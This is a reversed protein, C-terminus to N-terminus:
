LGWMVNTSWNITGTGSTKYTWTGGPSIPFSYASQCPLGTTAVSGQLTLDFGFAGNTYFIDLAGSQGTTGGFFVSGVMLIRQGTVNTYLSSAVPNFNSLMTFSATNTPIFAKGTLNVELDNGNTGFYNTNGTILLPTSKVFPRLSYGSVSTFPGGTDLRSCNNAQVVCQTQANFAMPQIDISVPNTLGPENFTCNQLSFINTAVLANSTGTTSWFLFLPRNSNSQDKDSGSFQTNYIQVPFNNSYGNPITRTELWRFPKNNFVTVNSWNTLITQSNEITILAGAERMQIFNNNCLFRCGNFDWQFQNTAAAGEFHIATGQFQFTCNLYNVGGILAPSGTGGFTVGAYNIPLFSAPGGGFNGMPVDSSIPSGFFFNVGTINNTGCAQMDPLILIGSTNTDTIIVQNSSEGVLNVFPPVIFYDAYNGNTGPFTYTGAMLVITAPANSYAWNAANVYSFFPKARSTGTNSDSGLATPSVYYVKPETWSNAASGGDVILNPQSGFVATHGPTASAPARVSIGQSFANLAFFLVSILTLYATALSNRWKLQDM